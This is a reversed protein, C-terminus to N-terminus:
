PYAEKLTQCGPGYILITLYRSIRRKRKRRRRGDEGNKRSREDEKWM